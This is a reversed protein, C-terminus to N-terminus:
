NPKQQKMKTIARNKQMIMKSIKEIDDVLSPKNSEVRNLMDLIEENFRREKKLIKFSKKADEIEREHSIPEALKHQALKYLDYESKSSKFSKTNYKQLYMRSIIDDKPYITKPTEDVQKKKEPVMHFDADLCQDYLELKYRMASLIALIEQCSILPYKLNNNKALIGKFCLYVRNMYDDMRLLLRANDLFLDVELKEEGSLIDEINELYGKRIADKIVEGLAVHALRVGMGVIVEVVDNAKYFARDGGTVSRKGLKQVRQVIKMELVKSSSKNLRKLVAVFANKM